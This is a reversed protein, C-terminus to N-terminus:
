ICYWLTVSQCLRVFPNALVTDREANLDIIFPLYLHTFVSYDM